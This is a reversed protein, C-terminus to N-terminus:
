KQLSNITQALSAYRDRLVRERNALEVEYKEIKEVRKKVEEEFAIVELEKFEVEKERAQASALKLDAKHRIDASAKHAATLASDAEVLAESARHKLDAVRGKELVIEREQCELQTQLQNLYVKRGEIRIEDSVLGESRKNVEEWEKDLPIQLLRLTERAKKVDDAIEDRLRLQADIESQVRKISETRFRSLEGEEKVLTQRLADVKSALHVGEDIQTKKQKALDATLTKKDLLRM